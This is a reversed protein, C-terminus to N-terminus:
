LWLTPIDYAALRRDATVLTLGEVRCQAILMRDFPDRHHLPLDAVREAHALTIQLLQFRSDTMGAEFSEPLMLKRLGRKIAVEWASAVSVHVESSQITEVV